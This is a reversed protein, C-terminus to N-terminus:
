LNNKLYEIGEDTISYIWENSDSKILKELKMENLLEMLDGGLITDNINRNVIVELSNLPIKNTGDKVLNLTKLIIIKYKM